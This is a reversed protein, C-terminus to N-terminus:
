VNESNTKGVFTRNSTRQISFRDKCMVKMWICRINTDFTHNEDSKKKLKWKWESWTIQKAKTKNFNLSHWKTDVKVFFLVKKGVSSWWWCEFFFDQLRCTKVNRGSEVSKESRQGKRCSSHFFFFLCILFHCKQIVCVFIERNLIWVIWCFHFNEGHQTTIYSKENM